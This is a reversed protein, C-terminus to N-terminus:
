ATAVGQMRSGPSAVVAGICGTLVLSEGIHMHREFIEYGGLLIDDRFASRQQIPDFEPMSEISQRRLRVAAEIDTTGWFAAIALRSYADIEADTQTPRVVIDGTPLTSM